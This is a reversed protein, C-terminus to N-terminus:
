YLRCQYHKARAGHERNNGDSLRRLRRL